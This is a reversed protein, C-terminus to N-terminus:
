WALGAYSIGTSNAAVSSDVAQCFSKDTFSGSSYLRWALSDDVDPKLSHQGITMILKQHQGITMIIGSGLPVCVFPLPHKSKRLKQHHILYVVNLHFKQNM